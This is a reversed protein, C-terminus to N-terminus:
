VSDYVVWFIPHAIHYNPHSDLTVHISDISSKERGIFSVLRECDEVAGPVFLAGEPSCFDNQPDIILLTSM